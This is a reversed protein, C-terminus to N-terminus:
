PAVFMVIICDDIDVFANVQQLSSNEFPLVSASTPKSLPILYPVLLFITLLVLGVKGVVRSVRRWKRDKM